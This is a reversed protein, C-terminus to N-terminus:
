SSRAQENRINEGALRTNEKVIKQQELKMKHDLLLKARAERLSEQFMKKRPEDLEAYYFVPKLFTQDYILSSRVTAGVACLYARGTNKKDIIIQPELKSKEAESIIEEYKCDFIEAPEKEGSLIGTLFSRLIYPMNGITEIKKM